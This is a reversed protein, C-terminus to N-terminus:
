CQSCCMKLINLLIIGCCRGGWFRKDVSGQKSTLSGIQYAESLSWTEFSTSSVCSQGREIHTCVHTFMCVCVCACVNLLFFGLTVLCHQRPVWWSVCRKRTCCNWSGLKSWHAAKNVCRVNRVLFMEQEKYVPIQASERGQNKHIMNHCRQPRNILTKQTFLWPHYLRLTYDDQIENRFFM